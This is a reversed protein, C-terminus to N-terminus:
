VPDIKKNLLVKKEELCDQRALLLTKEQKQTM